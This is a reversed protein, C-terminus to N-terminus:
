SMSLVVYGVLILLVGLLISIIEVPIDFINSLVISVGEFVMLLGIILLAYSFGLFIIKRKLRKKLDELAKVYRLLVFVLSLVNGM